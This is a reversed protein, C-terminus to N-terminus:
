SPIKVTTYASYIKQGDSKKYSRIRVYNNCLNSKLSVTTSNTKGSTITKKGLITSFSQNNSVQIEYGTNKSSGKWTVTLTKNKPKKSQVNQPKKPKVIVKTTYTAPLTSNTEAVKCTVKAIGPGKISVFGTSKNVTLVNSNSTKFTYSYANSLSASIKFGSCGDSKIVTKPLSLNPLTKKAFKAVYTKDKKPIEYLIITDMTKYRSTGYASKLYSKLHKEYASKSYRKYMSSDHSPFYDYYYFGDVSVRVVDMPTQTLYVKTGKQTYFGKFYYGSNPVVIFGRNILKTFKNSSNSTVKCRSSYSHWDNQLFFTGNTGYNYYVSGGKTIETKVTYKLLSGASAYGPLLCFIMLAIVTLIITRKCKM